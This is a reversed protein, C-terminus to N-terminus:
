KPEPECAPGAPGREGQPGPPGTPGADGKPGRLHETVSVDGRLRELIRDEVSRPGIAFVVELGITVVIGLVAVLFNELARHARDLEEYKESNRDEHTIISESYTKIARRLQEERREGASPLYDSGSVVVYVRARLGKVASRVAFVLQLIAYAALGLAVYHTGGGHNALGKEFASTVFGFVLATSISSLGLIATLRGEAARRRDEEMEYLVRYDDVIEKLEDLSRSGLDDLGGKEDERAQKEDPVSTDVGQREVRWRV